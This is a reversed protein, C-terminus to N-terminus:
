GREVRARAAALRRERVKARAPEARAVVKEQHQYEAVATRVIGAILEPDLRVTASAVVVDPKVAGAGILSTQVGASAALARIPFGPSNVIPVGILELNGRVERWDGSVAGIARMKDIDQDTVDPPIIGAFWIGFSDEGVNVFARVADPKDYYDSAAAMRSRASAHGGFTLCGVPVDGEDTDILGKKFYGYDTNTHPVDQCMGTMGIHCTGWEAVHGYVRRNEKDIRLPTARDLNPNAFWAAPYVEHEPEVLRAIPAGASAVLAASLKGRHQAPWFGLAEYHMNACMGALWDPNEVYKALQTRCRNFDGPAGWKIKAAGEGKTWYNRIRQTPIPDTIWGPGDHTTPNSTPGFVKAANLVADRVDKSLVSGVPAVLVGAKSGLSGRVLTQSTTFDLGAYAALAATLATAGLMTKESPSLNSIDPISAGATAAFTTLFSDMRSEDSAANTFSETLRLAIGGLLPSAGTAPATSTGRGTGVSTMTPDPTSSAPSGSPVLPRSSMATASGAGTTSAAGAESRPLGVATRYQANWAELTGVHGDHTGPAFAYDARMKDAAATIAALTADSERYEDTMCGCAQLAADQAALQEDSLDEQFDHGLSIYAEQFAPIPVITLGAVRMKSFVTESPMLLELLDIEDGEEMEQVEVEAADGDISVGRVMGNVMGDIAEQAYQTSLAIAGRWRWMNTAEDRWAEDVRGVTSTMSTDGGHSHVYEYLLPVPLDRTSLADLAFMRGDGTPVGEPALIGHVPIETILEEDEDPLEGEDAPEVAIDEEDVVAAAQVVESSPVEVMEIVRSEGDFPANDSEIWRQANEATDFPGYYRTGMEDIWEVVAGSAVDEDVHIGDGEEEGPFPDDTMAFADSGLVVDPNEDIEDDPGITYTTGSMIEGDRAAPQAVCRCSVWIEPPGIPQGPYALEYGGVDFTGGIPVIQGDTVSHLERVHSDNMDVWRKFKVGRRLAGAVTANNVTYTSLWKTVRDVSVDFGDDTPTATKDLSKAIERRFRALAIGRNAEPAEAEFVEMWLVAADSIIDAAWNEQGDILDDLGRRVTDHLEEDARELRTRRQAAFNASKM